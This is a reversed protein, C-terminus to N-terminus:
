KGMIKLIFGFEKSGMAALEWLIQGGEVKKKYQVGGWGMVMPCGPDLAISAVQAYVPFIQQIFFYILPQFSFLLMELPNPM